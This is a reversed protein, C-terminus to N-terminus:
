HTMNGLYTSANSLVIDPPKQSSFTFFDLHLDFHIAAKAVVVEQFMEWTSYCRRYRKAVRQFYIGEQRQRSVQVAAPLGIADTIRCKWFIPPSVLIYM